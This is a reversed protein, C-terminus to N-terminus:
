STLFRRVTENFEDPAEEYPLHGVGKMMVLESNPLRKQVEYASKALVARDRDGWILLTRMEGLEDYAAKLEQLNAHWSRVVSIAYNITQPQDLVAMYGEMTGPSIRM